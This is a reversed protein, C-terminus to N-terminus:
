EIPKSEIRAITRDLCAILDIDVISKLVLDVGCTKSPRHYAHIPIHKAHYDGSSRIALLAMKIQEGPYLKVIEVTEHSPTWSHGIPRLHGSM